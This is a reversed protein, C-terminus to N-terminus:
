HSRLLPLTKAYESGSMGWVRRIKEYVYARGPSQPPWHDLSAQSAWPLFAPRKPCDFGAMCHVFAARELEGLDADNM